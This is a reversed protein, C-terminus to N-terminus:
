ADISAGKFSKCVIVAGVICCGAMGGRGDLLGALSRKAAAEEGKIGGRGTLLRISREFDGLGSRNAWDGKATPTM